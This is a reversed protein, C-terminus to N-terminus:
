GLDYNYSLCTLVNNAIACESLIEIDMEFNLVILKMVFWIILIEIEFYLLALSFFLAFYMSVCVHM